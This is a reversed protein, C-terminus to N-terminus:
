LLMILGPVQRVADFVVIVQEASDVWPEITISVHRGGATHRLEFPPDFELGLCARVEATVRDSFGGESRGIAKFTFKCPFTHAAELQEKLNSQTM